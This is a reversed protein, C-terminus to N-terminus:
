AQSGASASIGPSDSPASGSGAAMQEGGRASLAHSPGQWAGERNGGGGGARSCNQAQQPEEAAPMPLRRRLDLLRLGLRFPLEQSARM